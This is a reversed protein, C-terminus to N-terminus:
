RTRTAPRRSPSRRAASRHSPAEGTRTPIPVSDFELGKAANSRPLQWPGNIMMAAKGAIFQNNVDAQAWNISSKSM